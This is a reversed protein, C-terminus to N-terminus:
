VRDYFGADRNQYKKYMQYGIAAAGIGVLAGIAVPGVGAGLGLSALFGKSTGGMLGAGVTAKGAMAGMPANAAAPIFGMKPAMAMGAMGKGAGWAGMGGGMGGGGMGAMGGGMGGMGKYAMANGMGGGMGKYAMAGKMGQMGGMSGPMGAMGGGAGAGMGKFVMTNSMGGKAGYMMMSPDPMVPPPPPATGVCAFKGGYGSNACVMGGKGAGKSYLVAKGTYGKAGSAQSMGEFKDIITSFSSSDQGMMDATKQVATELQEIGSPTVKAPATMMGAKYGKAAEGMGLFSKLFSWSM